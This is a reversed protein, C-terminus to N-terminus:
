RVRTTERCIEGKQPSANIGGKKKRMLAIEGWYSPKKKEEEFNQNSEFNKESSGKVFNWVSRKVGREELLTRKKKGGQSVGKEITGQGRTQSSRLDEGARGCDAFRYRM